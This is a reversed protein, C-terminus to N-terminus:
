CTAEYYKVEMMCYGQAGFTIDLSSRKGGPVDNLSIKNDRVAGVKIDSENARAERIILRSKGQEGQISFALAAAAASDDPEFLLRYKGQDPSVCILRSAFPTLRFGIKDGQAAGTRRRKGKSKKGKKKGIASADETGGFEIVEEKKAATDRVPLVEKMQTKSAKRASGLRAKKTKGIAGLNEPLFRGIGFADMEDEMPKALKELVVSKMWRDLMQVNKKAWKPKKTRGPDWSDHSPSEMKRFDRNMAEGEIMLIGTFQISSSINGKAFLTMGSARTRMIKRDLQEGGKIFLRCEGLGYGFEKAYDQAKESSTPDFAVEITSGSKNTLLDHYEVVKSAQQNLHSEVLAVASALSDRSVTIAEVQVILKDKWISVMFNSLVNFITQLTFDDDLKPAVIYIDTGEQGPERRIAGPIDLQHPIAINRENESLYGTGTTQEGDKEFTVLKAVGFSSSTGRDDLSSFFVCRLQSLAYSAFKGIGFSGGSSSDKNSTGSEKILRSWDTGVECTDAGRLGSTGFDSIRLIDIPQDFVSLADEFFEVADENKAQNYGKCLTLAEIFEDKNPFDEPNITFRQIEVRVPERTSTGADLSNQISERIIANSIDADFIRIGANNIGNVDGNNNGPFRWRRGGM